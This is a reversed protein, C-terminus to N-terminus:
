RTQSAPLTVEVEPLEQLRLHPHPVENSDALSLSYCRRQPSTADFTGSARRLELKATECATKMSIDAKGLLVAVSSLNASVEGPWPM